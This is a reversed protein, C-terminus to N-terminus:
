TVNIDGFVHSAFIRLKKAARDFGDSKYDLKSFLGSQSKNSDGSQIDIESLDVGIDGFITSIDGGKSHNQTFRSIRM